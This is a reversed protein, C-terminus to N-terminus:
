ANQKFGHFIHNVSKMNKPAPDSKPSTKARKQARKQAPKRVRKEPTRKPASTSQPHFVISMYLNGLLGFHAQGLINKTIKGEGFSL